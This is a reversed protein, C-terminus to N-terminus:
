ITSLFTTFFRSKNRMFVTKQTMVKEESAAHVNLVIIICCCARLVIYTMRVSVFEARTVASLIRHHVFFKNRMSSKRKRKLLFFYLGRNKYHGRKEV